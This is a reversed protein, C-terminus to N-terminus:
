SPEFTASSWPNLSWDEDNIFIGRFEVSAGKTVHLTDPWELRSRREPVVDGWWIWPSVGASRSLELLGYATGRGNSGTVLLRGDPTPTINFGDTLTDLAEVPVGAEELMRRQRKGARDLQTLNIVAKRSPLTVAKRGTVAEMDSGFMELATGVVLDAPTELSVSVPSTGDFWVTASATAGCIGLALSLLPKLTM